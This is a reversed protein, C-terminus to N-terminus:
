GDSVFDCVNRNASLEHVFTTFLPDCRIPYQQRRLLLCCRTGENAAARRKYALYLQECSLWGVLIEGLEQRHVFFSRSLSTQWRLLEGTTGEKVAALKAIEAMADDLSGCGDVHYPHVGATSFVVKRFITRCFSWLHEDNDVTFTAIVKLRPDDPTSLASARKARRTCSPPAGILTKMEHTCM